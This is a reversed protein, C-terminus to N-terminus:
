TAEGLIIVPLDWQILVVCGDKTWVSHETGVPNLVVSGAQYNGNEDSQTGELVVITELGVHRHRPVAAGSQYKLIAVSPEVPGGKLLWHVTIGERFPEFALGRWGGDILGAFSLNAM